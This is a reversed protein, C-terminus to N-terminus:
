LSELLRVYTRVGKLMGETGIRENTGHFGAIEAQTVIMPNFRFSDDAIQGYHRTDSAAVMLGPAVVVPGFEARTAQGILGFGESQHDSVASAERGNGVRVEVDDQVVADRVHAVVGEVTDRPHIRFNVTAIAEIPLVNSKPSGSLMTPATTTRLLANTFPVKGLEHELLPGFLWRNAFLVRQGFPMYPGIADLASASLGEIGGPLPREQLRVLAEALVGVATRSPPMSSHGGQGHAVIELTLSGKEATNVIALPVDVGPFVDKMVFSGEDLTWALQVGEARLTETVAAAGAVGGIEEDHGFSFYVTRRPREGRAIMWSAAELLGVVANKNDLAGRGWVYGDAIVGAYPPHTWAEETGPVVPVVDYHGAFLVPPVAPDSGTWTFLLTYGGIRRLTMEAMVAPYSREVWDIFGEFAAVDMTQPGEHSVTPFRIAEALRALVAAEDLEIAAASAEASAPAALDAPRYSWTRVGVAAVLAVLMVFVLRLM